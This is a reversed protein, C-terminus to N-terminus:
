SLPRGWVSSTAVLLEESLGSAHWEKELSLPASELRELFILIEPQWFLIYRFDSSGGAPGYDKLVTVLENENSKVWTSLKIDYTARETIPITRELSELIQLSLERDFDPQVVISLLEREALDLLNVLSYSPHKRIENMARGVEGDFLEVLSVLRYLSHRIEDSTEVLPKYLFKHSVVSAWLDQASTRIQLECELNPHSNAKVQLHLGRYGLKEPENLRTDTTQTVIIGSNRLLADHLLDVDDEFDVIARVGVKDTIKGWPDELYGKDMKKLAKQIFGAFTKTRVETGCHISQRAAELNIIGQVTKGLELFNPEELKWRKWDIELQSLDVKDM